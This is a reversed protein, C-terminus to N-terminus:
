KFTDTHTIGSNVFVFEGRVESIRKNCRGRFTVTGVGKLPLRYGIIFKREITDTNLLVGLTRIFTIHLRTRTVV